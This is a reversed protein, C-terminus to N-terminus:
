MHQNLGLNLQSLRIMLSTCVIFINFYREEEGGCNGDNQNHPYLTVVVVMTM